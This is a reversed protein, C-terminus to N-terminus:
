QMLEEKDISGNRSFSPLSALGKWHMWIFSAKGVIHTEPVFGWFRSDASNERNDGVVFYSNDPVTWEGGRGEYPKKAGSSFLKVEHQMLHPQSGLMEKYIFRQVLGKRRDDYRGQDILTKEILEGNVKVDTGIIQIHDGPVGLVRKIYNKSAAEPFRFVMVDGRKPSGIDLIKTHIAPLRLGYAFKNVVIFDHVKLTPLMSESPITFPEFIFSRVVLVIALVPILSNMFAVTEARKDPKGLASAVQHAGDDDKGDSLSATWGFRKDLAWVIVLVLLGLSLWFGIDIDM